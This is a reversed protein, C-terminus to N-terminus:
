REHFSEHLQTFIPKLMYQLLTKEGTIIETNVTMGPAVRYKGEEHGVYDHELQIQGKFYPKNKEDMFSNASVLHLTGWVFGYRAPDYTGVKVKVKQGPILHGIDRTDLKAEVMLEKGIPVLECIVGGPQIVAGGYHQVLGKVYGRSPALVTLRKVRDQLRGLSEHVQALEAIVTSLEDMSQKRLTAEQDALKNEAEALSERATLAQGQNRTLEGQLRSLERKTDLFQVMTILHHNFLNERQKVEQRLADVQESMTVQQQQFSELDLRKQEVQAQTVAKTADQAKLQSEYIARNDAALVDYGDGAIGFDPQRNEVFAKLREQKLLLAAERARTQDLDSLSSAASLRILPQGEEVLEGEQVMVAEVVGGELHQVPIVQGSPIVTGEASAIEPVSTFGSWVIFVLCLASTLMLSFRILPATGSEELQIAQALHRAQRGGIKVTAPPAPAKTTAPLQPNSPKTTM